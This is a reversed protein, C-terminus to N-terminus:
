CSVDNEIKIYGANVKHDKPFINVKLCSCALIFSSVFILSIKQINNKQRYVPKDKSKTIQLFIPRFFRNIM